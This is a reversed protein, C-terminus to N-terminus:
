RPWGSIKDMAIQDAWGLPRWKLHGYTSGEKDTYRYVIKNRELWRTEKSLTRPILCWTTKIKIDGPHPQMWRM